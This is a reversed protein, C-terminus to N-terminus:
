YALLYTLLYTLLCTLELSGSGGTSGLEINIERASLHTVAQASATQSRPRGSSGAVVAAAEQQRLHGTGQVRYGGAVVAAAEQQRLHQRLSQAQDYNLEYPHSGGESQAGAGQVRYGTGESQARSVSDLGEDDDDVSPRSSGRRASPWSVDAAASLREATSRFIKRPQQGPQQKQDIAHQALEAARQERLAERGEKREEREREERRAAGEVIRDRGRVGGWPVVGIWCSQKTTGEEVSVASSMRGLARMVGADTGGTFVWAGGTEAAKTVEYLDKYLATSM